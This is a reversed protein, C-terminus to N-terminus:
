AAKKLKDKIKYVAARSCGVQKAIKIASVGDALLKGILDADLSPKRGFKVGKAQAAIRGENTRELIRARESQAVAAFISVIMKGNESGTDIKDDIFFISIGKQDFEKVLAAMDALDRGLRDIKTVLLRDGKEMKARIADLGARDTNSGTAKDTFIRHDEVGEAKLAAVQIDLSQQSTSVRGYGFLRM